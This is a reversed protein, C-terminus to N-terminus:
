LYNMPSDSFLLKNFGYLNQKSLIPLNNSWSNNRGLDHSPKFTHNRNNIRDAQMSKSLNEHAFKKIQSAIGNVGGITEKLENTNNELATQQQKQNISMKKSKSDYDIGIKSLSQKLKDVKSYDVIGSDGFKKNLTDSVANFDKVLTELETKVKEKNIGDFSVKTSGREKLHLKVGSYFVSVENTESTYSKSFGNDKIKYEANEAKQILKHNDTLGFGDTIAFSNKLGTNESTLKLVSGTEKEEVQAKVGVKLENVKAALEKLVENVTKDKGSKLDKAQVKLDFSKDSIQLKFGSDSLAKEKSNKAPEFTNIQKKAISDVVLEFGKKVSHIPRTAAVDAVKPESNKIGAEKFVSNRSGSILRDSSNMLHTLKDNHESLKTNKLSDLRYDPKHIINNPLAKHIGEHIKNLQNTLEKRSKIKSIDIGKVLDKAMARATFKRNLQGTRIHSNLFYNSNFSGLRM